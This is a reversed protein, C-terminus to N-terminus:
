GAHDLHMVIGITPAILLLTVMVLLAVFAGLLTTVM